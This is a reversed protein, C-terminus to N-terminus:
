RPKALDARECRNAGEFPQAFEVDFQSPLKPSCLLASALKMLENTATGFVILEGDVGLLDVLDASVDGGVSDIASTAGTEGILAKARQKWDKDSTSLVNQIGLAELEVVADARRVLNLLGADGVRLVQRRSHRWV